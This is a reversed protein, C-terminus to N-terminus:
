PNRMLRDVAARRPLSPQAGLRTAALAGAACAVRAATFPDGRELWAVVFAGVFADGAATTDVANVRFARISRVRGDAAVVAGRRGRTVVATAGGVREALRSAADRAAGAGTVSTRLITAAETENVIIAAIDGLMRRSVRFAPAPNLIVRAGGSAAAAVTERTAALPIENQLLVADCRALFGRLRRARRADVRGNAGPSIVIQNEGHRDIVILAAGTPVGTLRAVERVSVGDDRLARLLQRGADDDGVAGAMAVRAGLRAAAVAQNAGKGGPVRGLDGGAVTEGPRPFEAVRLVLDINLSGVVAIRSKRNM